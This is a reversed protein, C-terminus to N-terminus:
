LHTASIVYKMNVLLRSDQFRTKKRNTIMEDDLVLQSRYKKSPIFHEEIMALVSRLSSLLNRNHQDFIIKTEFSSDCPECRYVETESGLNPESEFSKPEGKVKVKEKHVISLHMDFITKKDFQLSCRVCYSHSLNM